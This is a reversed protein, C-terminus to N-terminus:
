LELRWGGRAIPEAAVFLLTEPGAGQEARQIDEPADFYDGDRGRAIRSIISRSLNRCCLVFVVYCELTYCSYTRIRGLPLIM